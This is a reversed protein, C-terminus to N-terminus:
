QVIFGLPPPLYLEDYLKVFKENAPLEKQHFKETTLLQQTTTTSSLLINFRILYGLATEEVHQVFVNISEPSLAITCKYIDDVTCLWKKEFLM